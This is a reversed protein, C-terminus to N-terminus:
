PLEGEAEVRLKDVKAACEALRVKFMEFTRRINTVADKFSIGTMTTIQGFAAEISLFIPRIEAIHNRMGGVKASLWSWDEAERQWRNFVDIWRARWAYYSDFGGSLRGLVSQQHSYWAIDPGRGHDDFKSLSALLNALSRCQLIVLPFAISICLETIEQQADRVSTNVNGIVKLIDIVDMDALNAYKEDLISTAEDKLRKAEDTDSQALLANAENVSTSSTATKPVRNELELDM